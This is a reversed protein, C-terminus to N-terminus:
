LQWRTNDFVLGPIGVLQPSAFHDGHSAVWWIDPAGDSRRQPVLLDDRGAGTLDAPVGTSFDDYRLQSPASWFQTAGLGTGNSPLVILNPATDSRRSIALLDDKGDGTYEGVLWKTNDAVLSPVGASVPAEFGSGTSRLWFIEPAVGSSQKQIALLDDKGDGDIDATVFLTKSFEIGSPAAWLESGGLWSGTSRFVILNAAPDGRKSVALLDDNGDGTFDGSTWRTNNYVLGPTGVHRPSEFNSGTSRLWYILPESNGDGQKQIALLDDKADGDVDAPAGVFGDYALAGPAGWLESGGLWSGTSRFVILNPATDSRRSIALLDDKGDGNFDARVPVSTVNPSSPPPVDYSDNYVFKDSWSPVKDWSLYGLNSPYQILLSGHRANMSGPDVKSGNVLEDYHLHAVPSGGSNGVYGILEGRSVSGSTRVADSLHLYRSHRGDPHEIEVFRGRGGSCGPSNTPHCTDNSDVVTGPGAAYVPVGVDAIFDIAPSLGGHYGSDCGNNWTCGVEVVGSGVKFPLWDATEAAHAPASVGLLALSSLLALVAATAM